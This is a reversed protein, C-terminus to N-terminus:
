RIYKIKNKLHETYTTAYHIIGNKDHLYYLYNTTTPHMVALISEKGPNNIPASPIGKKLYTNYPSNIRLDKLTIESSAHGTLYTITADLQLPINKNLRNEIIGAIIGREEKTRGEAEVLSAKIVITKAEESNLTIPDLINSLYVSSKNVLKDTIENITSETDFFYTEPFIYGEKPILIANLDSEKINPFAKAIRASIASSTFGEPITIKIEKVGRIGRHLRYAISFISESGEFKYRGAVISSDSMRMIISLAKSSRIIKNEELLNGAKTISSGYPIEVYTSTDIKLPSFFAYVVWLFCLIAGLIVIKTFRM